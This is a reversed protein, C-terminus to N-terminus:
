RSRRIHNAYEPDPRFAIGGSGNRNEQLWDIIAFTTAQRLTRGEIFEERLEDESTIRYRQRALFEILAQESM